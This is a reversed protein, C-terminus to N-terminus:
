TCFLMAAAGSAVDTAMAVWGDHLSEQRFSSSTRARGRTLTTLSLFFFVCMVKEPQLVARCSVAAEETTVDTRVPYVLVTHRMGLVTSRSTGRLVENFHRPYRVKSVHVDLMCPLQAADHWANWVWM